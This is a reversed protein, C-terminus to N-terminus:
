TSLVESSSLHLGILLLAAIVYIILDYVVLLWRVNSRKTIGNSVKSDKETSIQNQIKESDQTSM